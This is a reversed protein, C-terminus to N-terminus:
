QIAPIFGMKGTLKQSKPSLVYDLFEQSTESLEGKKHLLLFPRSLKYTGDEMNALSYSVGDVAVSKM